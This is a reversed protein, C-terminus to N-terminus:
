RDGMSHAMLVVERGSTRHLDVIEKKLRSFYQDREELKSIACRWDYTMARLNKGPEYGFAQLPELLAGMLTAAQKIVPVEVAPWSAESLATVASIGYGEKDPRVCIEAGPDKWGDVLSMHRAWASQATDNSLGDEENSRNCAAKIKEKVPAMAKLADGGEKAAKKLCELV